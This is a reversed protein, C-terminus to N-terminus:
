SAMYAYNLFYPCHHFLQLSFLGIKHLIFHIKYLDGMWVQTRNHKCRYKPQFENTHTDYVLLTSFEIIYLDFNTKSIHQFGSM